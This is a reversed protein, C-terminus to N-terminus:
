VQFTLIVTLGKAPTTHITDVDVRLKDGTAVDDTATNIVPATAATYSTLEGTDITIVTSLMDVADTVNHIQVSQTGTTGAVEVSAHANVLNMGNFEEPVTFTIAGVGDGVANDTANDLLVLSVVRNNIFNSDNTLTSINDGPQTASDALDLSTNVSTDLKTEDISGAVLSATIDQGILTFDIEASDTVTVADHVDATTALGAEAPTQNIWESSTTDYALVENDSPATITVNSLDGINEGTVGSIYGADNTLTSINDGPQISSDALGLSTNVSVDLKTEDISGAILSATIDQGTLTFDIEASDTVTVAAHRAATNAAVDTNASVRLETYYLNTGESIDSTSRTGLWTLARTDNHYQTHDDDALGTLLGHDTVGSTPLVQEGAGDDFLVDTGDTKLPFRAM